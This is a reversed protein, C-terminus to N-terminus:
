LGHGRSQPDGRRGPPRAPLGWTWCGAFPPHCLWCSSGRSATLQDRGFRWVSTRWVGAAPREQREAPTITPESSCPPARNTSRPLRWHALTRDRRAWRSALGRKDTGDASPPWRPCRLHVHASSRSRHGWGWGRVAVGPLAPKSGGRHADGSRQKRSHSQPKRPGALLEDCGTVQACSAPRAGRPSGMHRAPETWAM